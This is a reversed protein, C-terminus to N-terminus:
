QKPSYLLTFGRGELIVFYFNWVMKVVEGGGLDELEQRDVCHLGQEQSREHATCAFVFPLSCIIPALNVAIICMPFFFLPIVPFLFVIASAILRFAIIINKNGVLQSLFRLARLRRNELKGLVNGGTQPFVWDSRIGQPGIPSCVM